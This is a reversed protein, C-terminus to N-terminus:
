ADDDAHDDPESIEEVSEVRGQFLELMTQVAPNDEVGPAAKKPRAPEAAAPRPAGGGPDGARAEWVAGDGLVTRVAEDLVRRNDDKEIRRRLLDDGSPVWLVLRGDVIQRRTQALHVALPPKRRAVEEDIAAIRSDDGADGEGGAPPVDVPADAPTARPIAAAAPPETAATPADGPPPATERAERRPPAAKRPEAALPAPSAGLIEEIRTLKPLEAARLWAIELALFPAESRRVAPESALLQHLLRLLNEYGAARATAALAEADDRPLEVEAPARGMALHLADRCYALLHVFAQRPDWGEDELRRVTASVEERRAELIAGLLAHLLGADLGGLLRAADEDSITGSGFTALQDLLAVADRVSGEGARAILRLANAGADIGESACITELHRALAEAPVRRFGFEQCRSLVTAPVADAETTAFVFVLHDPPEEVIKLLADFAQRSLRHIEDLVAVKYRDRAPGYKLSEALERVQEVKSYTAADVEIVDMDSGRTIEICATCENCPEATPGRECNLAKALLRAASTKGVGRIGSFLYAQAIRGETLANQLATVIPEQGVLDAFRQPRWKRALVQYAM